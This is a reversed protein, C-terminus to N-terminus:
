TVFDQRRRLKYHEINMRLIYKCGVVIDVEVDWRQPESSSSLIVVKEKVDLIEYSNM